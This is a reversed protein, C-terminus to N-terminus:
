LSIKTNVEYFRVKVVGGLNVGKSLKVLMTCAAKKYLLKQLKESIVPQSQLNKFSYNRLLQEYFTPLISVQNVEDQSLPRSWFNFDSIMGIASGRGLTVQHSTMRDLGVQPAEIVSLVQQLKQLLLTNLKFVLRLFSGIAL